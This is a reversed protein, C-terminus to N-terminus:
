VVEYFIGFVHMESLGAERSMRSPEGFQNFQLSSTVSVTVVAGLTLMLALPESSMELATTRIVAFWRRIASRM